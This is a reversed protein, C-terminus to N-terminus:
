ESGVAMIGAVKTYLESISIAYDPPGFSGGDSALGQVAYIRGRPDTCMTCDLLEGSIHSLNQNVMKQALYEARLFSKAFLGACGQGWILNLFGYNPFKWAAPDTKATIILSWWHLMGWPFSINGCIFMVEKGFVYEQVKWLRTWWPREFLSLIVEFQSTGDRENLAKLTEEQSVKNEKDRFKRYPGQITQL